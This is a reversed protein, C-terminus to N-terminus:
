SGAVPPPLTWAGNPPGLFVATPESLRVLEDVLPDLHAPFGPLWSAMMLNHEFRPVLDGRGAGLLGSVVRQRLRGSHEIQTPTRPEYYAVEVVGAGGPLARIREIISEGRAMFVAATAETNPLVRHPVANVGVSAAVGVDFGARELELVLGYSSPLISVADVWVVLYPGSPKAHEHEHLAAVTDPVLHALLRSERPDQEQARAASSTLTATSVLLVAAAAAAGAPSAWRPLSGGRAAAWATAAWATVAVCLITTGWAWLMLYEWAEGYIRSIAVLGRSLALGVVVHLRWVEPSAHRRRWTIAAAGAWAALLLAGALPSGVPARDFSFGHQPLQWLDMHSLWVNVARTGLGLQPEPPRTLSEMIIALNGPHHRLQDLAPPLWLVALASACLLTWRAIRRRRAREARRWRAAVVVAVVGLMGGVLGLYSVHTQACLSGAFVAVPALAFDDCLVSWVALLFVIWWLAPLYPNWPETLRDIGYGHMLVALGAGFGIMVARGARRQMIWLAIGVAALNLVATAAVLAWSSGGFLEYVPWLLWFSLPGPHSGQHGFGSLRGALGVLPAHMSAVDRVRLETMAMDLGPYWRPQRLVGVAVALPTGAVVAATAAWWPGSRRDPWRTADAQAADPAPRAAEAVADHRPLRQRVDAM